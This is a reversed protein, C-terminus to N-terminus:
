SLVPPTLMASLEDESHVDFFSTDSFSLGTVATQTSSLIPELDILNGEKDLLEHPPAAVNAGAAKPTKPSSNLRKRLAAPPTFSQIFRSRDADPTVVAGCLAPQPPTTVPSPTLVPSTIIPTGVCSPEETSCFDTITMDETEPLSTASDVSGCESINSLARPSRIEPVIKDNFFETTRVMEIKFTYLAEALSACTAPSYQSFTKLAPHVVMTPATICGQSLVVRFPEAARSCDYLLNGIIEVAGVDKRNIVLSAQLLVMVECSVTAELDDTARRRINFRTRQPSRFACGVGYWSPKGSEEGHNADECAKVAEKISVVVEKWEGPVGKSDLEDIEQLDLNVSVSEDVGCTMRLTEKIVHIAQLLSVEM